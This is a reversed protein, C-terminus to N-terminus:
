REIGARANARARAVRTNLSAGFVPIRMLERTLDAGLEQVEPSDVNAPNVGQSFEDVAHVMLTHRRRDTLVNVRYTRALWLNTEARALHGEAPTLAGQTVAANIGALRGYARARQTWKDTKM